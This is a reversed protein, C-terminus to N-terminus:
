VNQYVGRDLEALNESIPLDEWFKLRIKPAISKLKLILNAKKEESVGRPITCCKPITFGDKYYKVALFNVEKQECITIARVDRPHGFFLYFVLIIDKKNRGATGEHWICAFPKHARTEKGIPVFTENFATLRPTFILEKFMECQLLMII